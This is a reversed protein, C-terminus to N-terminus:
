MEPIPGPTLLDHCPAPVEGLEEERVVSPCMLKLASSVTRPRRLPQLPLRPKLWWPTSQKQAYVDGEARMQTKSENQAMTIEEGKKELSLPQVSLSSSSPMDHRVTNRNWCRIWSGLYVAKAENVLRSSLDSHKGPITDIKLFGCCEKMILFSWRQVYSLSCHQMADAKEHFDCSIGETFELADHILEHEALFNPHLIVASPIGLAANRLEHFLKSVSYVRFLNREKNRRPHSRKHLQWLVSEVANIDGPGTYLPPLQTEDGDAGLLFSKINSLIEPHDSESGFGDPALPILHTKKARKTAVFAYGLPIDGPNIFAHYTKRIGDVFSFEVLAIECGLYRGSGHRCYYNVHALHFPHTKVSNRRKLERVTEETEQAMRM